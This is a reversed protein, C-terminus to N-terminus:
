FGAVFHIIQHRLIQSVETYFKVYTGWKHRAGIGDVPSQSIPCKCKHIIIVSMVKIIVSFVKARIILDTFIIDGWDCERTWFSYCNDYFWWCNKPCKQATMLTFLWTRSFHTVTLWNLSGWPAHAWATENGKRLPGAYPRLYRRWISFIWFCSRWVWM